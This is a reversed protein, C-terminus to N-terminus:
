RGVTIGAENAIGTQFGSTWICVPQINSTLAIRNILKILAIDADRKSDLPKWNGAAWRSDIAKWDNHLFFHEPKVTTVANQESNDSNSWDGLQVIVDEPRKPTKEGKNQLCHAATLVFHESVLFGDCFSNQSSELLLVALWPWTDRHSVTGVEQSKAAEISRCESKDANVNALLPLIFFVCVSGKFNM